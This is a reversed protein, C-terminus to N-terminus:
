AQLQLVMREVLADIDIDALRHQAILSRLAFPGDIIEFATLIDISTSIEGREKWREVLEPIGSLPVEMLQQRREALEPDRMLAAWLEYHAARSRQDTFNPLIRRLFEALDGRLSGTEPLEAYQVTGDVARLLLETPEPFHRYITTKAVGSRQAVEDITCGGWGRELIVDTAAAIMKDRADTSLPRAM